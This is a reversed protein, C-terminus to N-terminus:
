REAEQKQRAWEKAAAREAEIQRLADRAIGARECARLRRAEPQEPDFAVEANGEILDGLVDVVAELCPDSDLVRAFRERRAEGDLEKVKRLRPPFLRELLTRM